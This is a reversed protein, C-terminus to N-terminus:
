KCRGLMSTVFDSYLLLAPFIQLQLFVAIIKLVWQRNM